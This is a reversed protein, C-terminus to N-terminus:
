PPLPRRRQAFLTNHGAEHLLVFAHVFAAALLLQGLAYAAPNHSSSLMLGAALTLVLGLTHLGAPLTRPRLHAVAM